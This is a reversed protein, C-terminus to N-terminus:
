KILGLYRWYPVAAVISVLYALAFFPNVRSMLPYSFGKGETTAYALTHWDIQYRFFWPESGILGVMTVVWPNVNLRAALPVLAIILTLVTLRQSFVLKLVFGILAIVIFTIVPTEIFPLVLPLFSSSLWTDIKAKALLEPLSQTAGLYILFEWDISSKFASWGLV